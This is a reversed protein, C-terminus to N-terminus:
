LSRKFHDLNCFWIDPYVLLFNFLHVILTKEQELHLLEFKSIMAFYIKSNYLSFFIASNLFWISWYHIQSDTDSNRQTIWHIETYEEYSWLFLLLVSPLCFEEFQIYVRLFRWLMMGTALVMVIWDIKPICAPNCWYSINQCCCSMGTM